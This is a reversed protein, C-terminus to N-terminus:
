ASLQEGHEDDVFWGVVPAIDIVNIEVNKPEIEFFWWRADNADFAHLYSMDQAWRNRTGLIRRFFAIAYLQRSEEKGVEAPCCMIRHHATCSYHGEFEHKM